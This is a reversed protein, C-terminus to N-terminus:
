LSRRPITCCIRISGISSRGEYDFCEHHLYEALKRNIRIYGPEKDKNVYSYTLIFNIDDGDNCEVLYYFKKEM